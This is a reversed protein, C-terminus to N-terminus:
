DDGPEKFIFCEDFEIDFVKLFATYEELFTQRKHHHEQNQIYRIVNDVHSKSYSFAGFGEQWGFKHNALHQENIFKTSESKVVQILQSMNDNPRLGVLMHFHDPMTNIQLMKHSKTQVIGTIYQHSENKWSAHILANKFKVAFIFQIHIQTYTKPM